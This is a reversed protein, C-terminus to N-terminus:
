GKKWTWEEFIRIGLVASNKVKKAAMPWNEPRELSRLITTTSKM